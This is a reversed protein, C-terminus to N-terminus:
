DPSGGELREIIAYGKTKLIREQDRAMGTQTGEIRQIFREMLHTPSTASTGRAGPALGRELLEQAQQLAALLFQQVAPDASSSRVDGRLDAIEGVIRGIERPTVQYTNHSAVMLRKGIPGIGPGGTDSGAAECGFSGEPLGFVLNDRSLTYPLGPETEVDRNFNNWYWHTGQFDWGLSGGLMLPYWIANLEGTGVGTLKDALNWNLPPGAVGTTLYARAPPNTFAHCDYNAPTDVPACAWNTSEDNTCWHVQWKKPLLIQYFHILAGRAGGNVASTLDQRSNSWDFQSNAPLSGIQALKSYDTLYATVLATNRQTATAIQNNLDSAIQSVQETIDGGTGDAAVGMCDQILSLILNLAPGAGPIFDALEAAVGIGFEAWKTAVSEDNALNVDAQAEDLAGLSRSYIQNLVYNNNDFWGVVKAVYGLELVVQNKVNQWTPDSNPGSPNDMDNVAAQTNLWSGQDFDAVPYMSRIDNVGVFRASSIARYAACSPSRDNSGTCFPPFNAEAAVTWTGTFQYAELGKTGRGLLVTRSGLSQQSGGFNVRATQLTAYQEKLNWGAEDTFSFDATSLLHGELNFVLMGRRSRVLFEPTADGTLDAALLTSFQSERNWDPGDLLISQVNKWGSGQWQHIQIRGSGDWGPVVGYMWAQGHADRIASISQYRSGSGFGDQDAFPGDTAVLSWTNNSWKYTQMGGPTRVLIEPVTDGDLDITKLTRYSSEQDFGAEDALIMGGRMRIWSVSPEDWRYSQLGTRGRGILEAGGDRTLDALRITEYYQPQSWDTGDTSGSSAFPRSRLNAGLEVWRGLDKRYRFVHVGDAKRAVIDAHGVEPQLVAARITQYSHPNAFGAADSLAALFSHFLLTGNQFRYVHLGDTWRYLVEPQGDWDIDATQITTYYRPNKWGLRDSLQPLAARYSPEAYMVACAGLSLLGTFLRMGGNM